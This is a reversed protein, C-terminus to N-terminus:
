EHFYELPFDKTQIAQYREARGDGDRKGEDTFLSHFVVDETGRNPPDHIRVHIFGEGLDDKIAPLKIKGLLIVGYTTPGARVEVLDKEINFNVLDADSIGAARSYMRPEHGDWRKRSALIESKIKKEVTQFADIAKDQPPHAENFVVSSEDAM